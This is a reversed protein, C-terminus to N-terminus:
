PAFKSPQEATMNEVVATVTPEYYIDSLKYLWPGNFYLHEEVDAILDWLRRHTHNRTCLDHVDGFAREIPNAQPCYTPLFLLTV